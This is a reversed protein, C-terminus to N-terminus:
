IQIAEFTGKVVCKRLSDLHPKDSNTTSFECRCCQLSTLSKLSKVDCVNNLTQFNAPYFIPWHDVVQRRNRARKRAQTDNSSSGDWRIWTVQISFHLENRYSSRAEIRVHDRTVTLLFLESPRELFLLGDAFLLASDTSFNIDHVAAM